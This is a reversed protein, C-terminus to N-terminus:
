CYTCIVSISIWNRMAPTLSVLSLLSIPWYNGVKVTCTNFLIHLEEASIQGSEKQLM